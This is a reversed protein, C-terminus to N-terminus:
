RTYRLKLENCTASFDGLCEWGGAHEDKFGAAALIEKNAALKMRDNAYFIADKTGPDLELKKLLYEVVQPNKIHLPSVHMEEIYITTDEYRYFLLAALTTDASVTLFRRNIDVLHKRMKHSWLIFNETQPVNQAILAHINKLMPVLAGRRGSHDFVEIKSMNYGGKREQKTVNELIIDSNYVTPPTQYIRKHIPPSFAEPPQM